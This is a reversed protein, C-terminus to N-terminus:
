KKPAPEPDSWVLQLVVCLALALLFDFWQPHAPWIKQPLRMRWAIIAAATAVLSISLTKM